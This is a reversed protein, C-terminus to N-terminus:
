DRPTPGYSASGPTPKRGLLWPERYNFIARKLIDSQEFRLSSYRASGWLNRHSNGLVSATLDGYGFGVEVAGAASKLM